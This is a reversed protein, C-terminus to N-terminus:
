AMDIEIRENIGDKIVPVFWRRPVIRYAAYPPMPLKWAEAQKEVQAPYPAELREAVATIQLGSIRIEPAPEYEPQVADFIAVAVNQNSELQVAHATSAPSFFYLNLDDDSIYELPAIWPSDGGTTAMTLYRNRRILDRAFEQHSDAM